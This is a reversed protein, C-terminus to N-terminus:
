QRVELKVRSVLISAIVNTFIIVLFCIYFIQNFYNGGLSFLIAALVAVVTGRQMLAFAMNRYVREKGIIFYVELYRMVLLSATVIAAYIMYQISLLAIMGIFVFFFTIILFELDREVAHTERREKKNIEIKLGLREAIAKYNGIIIAFILVSIAAAGNFLDVVGYLLIAVALGALYERAGRIYSQMMLWLIGAILGLAIAVSVYDVTFNAFTSMTLPQGNTFSLLLTFFLIAFVSNLTTEMFLPVYLEDPIRIKRILPVVIVTSTEGLIAGLIAGYIPPWGFAMMVIALIVMSLFVDLFGLSIGQRDHLLKQNLVITKGGNYMIVVLAIDGFIGAISRLATVYSAPLLHGAPGLLVGILILILAEPIKTRRFIAKGVYGIIIILAIAILIPISSLDAQLLYM